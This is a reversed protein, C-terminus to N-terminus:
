TFRLVPLYSANTNADAPGLMVRNLKPVPYKANANANTPAPTPSGLPPLNQNQNMNMKVNTNANVNMNTTNRVRGAPPESINHRLVPATAARTHAGFLQPEAPANSLPINHQFHPPTALPPQPPRTVQPHTPIFPPPRRFALQAAHSAGYATQAHTPTSTMTPTTPAAAAHSPVPFSSKQKAPLRGNFPIHARGPPATRLEIQARVAAQAQARVAARAVVEEVSTQAITPNSTKANEVPPRSNLNANTSFHDPSGQAQSGVKAAGNARAPTKPAPNGNNAKRLPNPLPAMAPQMGGACSNVRTNGSKAPQFTNSFGARARAAQPELNNAGGLPVNATVGQTTSHAANVQANHPANFQVNHAANFQTHNAAKNFQANHMASFQASQAATFQPNVGALQLQMAAAFLAAVSPPLPRPPLNQPPPPPGAYPAYFPDHMTPQALLPPPPPPGAYPAYLPDHLPLSPARPVPLGQNMHPPVARGTSTMLEHVRAALPHPLPLPMEASRPPTVQASPLPIGDTQVGALQTGRYNLLTAQAISLRGSDDATSTEARRLERQDLTDAFRVYVRNEADDWGRVKKGNLRVIVDEAAERTDMRMFAIMTQSEPVKSRLFRTSQIVHPHVLEILVNKDASMPLGEIYLNTSRKDELQAMKAKFSLESPSDSNSSALSSTSSRAPLTPSHPSCVIRPPKNVKSFSPHLDSRKLTGICKEAAAMSDFLVFGYGSAARPTHRTFCRVSLVEGFQATIALLQDERFYPPLGNIYVNPTKGESDPVAPAPHSERPGQPRNSSLEADSRKPDISLEADPSNPEMPSIGLFPVPPSPPASPPAPSDALGALDGSSFSILDGGDRQTVTPPNPTECPSPSTHASHYQSISSGSSESAPLGLFEAPSSSGEAPVPKTTDAEYPSARTPGSM